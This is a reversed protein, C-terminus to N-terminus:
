AKGGPDGRFHSRRARLTGVECSRPTTMLGRGPPSGQEPQRSPWAPRARTSGSPRRPGRPAAGRRARHARGHDPRDGRNVVKADAAPWCTTSPVPDGVKMTIQKRPFLHPKKAYSLPARPCGVARDPDGPVRDRARDPRRRVQRGDAVPRPRPDAHGRSLGRRVRGARGRRRRRRLCGQREQLREVPIQGAARLFYGLPPNKFLGSKALYRPM